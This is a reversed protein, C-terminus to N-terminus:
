QENYLLSILFVCVLRLVYLLVLQWLFRIKEAYTHAQLDLEAIVSTNGSEGTNGGINDPEKDPQEAPDTGPNEAPDKEPEKDPESPTIDGPTPDKEPPTEAAGYASFDATVAIRM